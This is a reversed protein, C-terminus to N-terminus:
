ITLEPLSSSEDKRQRAAQEHLLKNTKQQERILTLLLDKVGFIAFPTLVWLVALVLLFGAIALIVFASLGGLLTAM